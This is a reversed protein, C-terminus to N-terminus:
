FLNHPNHKIILQCVAMVTVTAIKYQDAFMEIGSVVQSGAHDKEGSFM